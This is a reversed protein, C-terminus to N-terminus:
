PQMNPWIQGADLRLCPSVCAICAISPSQSCFTGRCRTSEQYQQKKVKHQSGHHPLMDQAVICCHRIPGAVAAPTQSGHQNGVGGGVGDQQVRGGWGRSKWTGAGQRHHWSECPEQDHLLIHLTAGNRLSDNSRQAFTSSPRTQAEPRCLSLTFAPAAWSECLLALALLNLGVGPPPWDGCALSGAARLPLGRLGLLRCVKLPVAVGNPSSNLVAGLSKTM